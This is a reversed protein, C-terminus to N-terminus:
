GYVYINDGPGNGYHMKDIMDSWGNRPREKKPGDSSTDGKKQTNEGKKEAENEAM